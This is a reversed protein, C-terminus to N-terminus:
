KNKAINTRPRNPGKDSLFPRLIIKNIDVIPDINIVNFMNNTPLKKSVNPIDKKNTPENISPIAPPINDNVM